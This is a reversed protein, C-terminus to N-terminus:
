FSVGEIEISSPSIIEIRAGMKKLVVILDLVEPELAANVIRTIGKTLTAAMLINETAGVSPYELVLRTPKLTAVRARLVNGEVDCVVGMKTFNKIHFDIPREGILCGGPLAIEVNSFRALLPGMVLVSARMKRM